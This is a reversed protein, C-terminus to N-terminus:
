RLRKFIIIILFLLNIYAIRSNNINGMDILEKLAKTLANINLIGNLYFVYPMNYAVSEEEIRNIIWLRKQAHSVDYYEQKGLVEIPNYRM